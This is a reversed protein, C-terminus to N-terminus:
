CSVQYLCIKCNSGESKIYDATREALMTWAGKRQLTEIKDLYSDEEWAQERVTFCIHGGPKVIRLLEDFAEPGVHGCTFTGVSIVADFTNSTIDLCGTLDGQTLKLYIQKQGAKELMAGSYDLGEINTYGHRCLHEGVLGTGCGADLITTSRDEVNDSFLQTALLPAVYGMEDILDQDYNDAWEGYAKSLEETTSANLVRDHIERRNAM